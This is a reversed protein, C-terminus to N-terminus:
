TMKSAQAQLYSWAEKKELLRVDDITFLMMTVTFFIHKSM